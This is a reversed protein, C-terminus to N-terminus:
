AQREYKGKGAKYHMPCIYDINNGRTCKCNLQPVKTM